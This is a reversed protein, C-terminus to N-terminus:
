EHEKKPGILQMDLLEDITLEITIHKNLLLSTIVEEIRKIKYKDITALIHKM